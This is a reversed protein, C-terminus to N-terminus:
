PGYGTDPVNRYDIFRRMRARGSDLTLTRGPRAAAKRQMLLRDYELKPVGFPLGKAELFRWKVGEIFLRDNFLHYDDDASLSEKFTNGASKAWYSTIFSIALSDGNATPTPFVEITDDATTRWIKRIPTTIVGYQWANWEQDDVSGVFFWSNTADWGTENVIRTCPLPTAGDTASVTYEATGNVTSITCLKRLVPWNAEDRLADGTKNAYAVLQVVQQSTSSSVSTPVPLGIERCVATVVGLLARSSM